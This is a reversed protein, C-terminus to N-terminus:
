AKVPMEHKNNKLKQLKQWIHNQEAESKSLTYAMQLTEIVKHKDTAIYLEGMLIYYFHTDKFKLQEMQTIAVHPGEVKSLAFIRNLAAMPSPATSLLVDYLQLISKWKDINDDKVTHWYAICAEIYYVSKEEWSSALQLYHFGKEILASDWLSVDQENYLIHQGDIGTRADLRSAQFCMLAMLAFSSHTATLPSDLLLHNLQIAEFCLEKRVITLHSESYYGESFLLYITKLVTELREKIAGDPPMEISIKNQRLKEKARWLRKSITAKNTMFAAAIEDIGFGCLMSLALSIQAEVALCPHCLVFLMQLQSDLINPESLDLAALAIEEQNELNPFVKARYITTRVLHNKANNKAVTYLWATPNAPVGKYPWTEAAQLFTHGAIDEAIALHDLGFYKVLVATIKSYETRFLNPLIETYKQGESKM